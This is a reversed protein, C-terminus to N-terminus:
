PRHLQGPRPGPGDPTLAEPWGFRRELAALALCALVLAARRASPPRRAWRAMRWLWNM